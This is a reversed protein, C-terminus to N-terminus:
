ADLKCNSPRNNNRQVLPKTTHKLTFLLPKNSGLGIHVYLFHNDTSSLPALLIHMRCLLYSMNSLQTTGVPYLFSFKSPTITHKCLLALLFTSTICPFSISLNSYIVENYHTFTQITQHLRM